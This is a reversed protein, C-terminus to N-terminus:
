TRILMAKIHMGMFQTLLMTFTVIAVCIACYVKGVCYPTYKIHLLWFSYLLFKVYVVDGQVPVTM